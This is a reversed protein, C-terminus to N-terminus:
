GIRMNMLYLYNYIFKYMYIYITNKVIVGVIWILYVLYPPNWDMPTGGTMMWNLRMKGLLFWRAVPPNGHSLFGGYGMIQIVVYIYM